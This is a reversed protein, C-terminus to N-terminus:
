ARCGSETETPASGTVRQLLSKREAIHRVATDVRADWTNRSVYEAVAAADPHWEGAAAERLHAVWADVDRARRVLDPPQVLGPLDSAVVPRGSAVYEYLKVPDMNRTLETDVHPLICADFAALYSAVEDGGCRGLFYVNPLRQLPAVHDADLVPGVFVFSAEPMRLAMQEVLGADLRDQIAGVYGIRPRPVDKLRAPEATVTTPPVRHAANPLVVVEPKGGRFRSALTPTVAFVLDAGHVIRRYGRRIQDGLREYFPHALWEDVADYVLVRDAFADAYGVVTPGALWVVPAHMGLADASRRMRSVLAADHLPRNIGAALPSHRERPMLRPQDLVYVREAAQTLGQVGRAHSAAPREAGHTLARAFSTPADCVLMRRVSPHLSLGRAISATRGAFGDRAWDWWKDTFTLLVVDMGTEPERLTM